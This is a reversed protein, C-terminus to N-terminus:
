IGNISSQHYGSRLCLKSFINAGCLENLLEDSVPIQYKDKIKKKNLAKYDVCMQWSVDAKRVLLIPFSFLSQSARISRVDLLEKVITETEQKQYYLRYLYRHPRECILQAGDNLNINYEHKGQSPLGIPSEFVNDYELLKNIEEVHQKQGEHLNPPGVGEISYIYLVQARILFHLIEAESRTALGLQANSVTKTPTM